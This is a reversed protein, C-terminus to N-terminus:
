IPKLLLQLRERDFPTLQYSRDPGTPVLKQSVGYRWGAQARQKKLKRRLKRKSRRALDEPSDRGGELLNM